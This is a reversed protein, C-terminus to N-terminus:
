RGALLFPASVRAVELPSSYTLAHAGGPVVRLAGGAAAAADRAWRQPTIPDRSGRVVMTPRGTAPLKGAVPDALMAEFSRWVRLPGTRCVDRLQVAWLSPRELPADCGLRLLQQTRSRARPDVSPGVLVLRDVREPRRAALDVAVQCGMSLGLLSATPLGVATMWAALADALAPIDLVRPPADSGGFGPLDPVWVRLRRALLAATPRVVDGAGGVGHVMVVAPAAPPSGAGPVLGAMALGGVQRVDRRLLETM